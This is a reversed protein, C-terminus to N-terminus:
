SDFECRLLYSAGCVESLGAAMTLRNDQAIAADMPMDAPWSKLSFGPKGLIRMMAGAFSLINRIRNSGVFVKNIIFQWASPWDCYWWAVLLSMARLLQERDPTQISLQLFHPLRSKNPRLVRGILVGRKGNHKLLTPFRFKM